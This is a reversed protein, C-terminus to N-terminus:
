AISQNPSLPPPLSPAAPPATLTALSRPPSSSSTASYIDNYLLHGNTFQNWGITISGLILAFRGVSKKVLYTLFTSIFADLIVRCAIANYSSLPLLRPATTAAVLIALTHSQPAPTVGLLM